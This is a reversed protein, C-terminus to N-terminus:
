SHFLKAEFVLFVSLSATNLLIYIQLITSTSILPVSMADFCTSCKGLRQGHEILITDDSHHTELGVVIVINVALITSISM